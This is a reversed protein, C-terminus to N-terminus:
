KWRQGTATRRGGQVDRRPGINAPVPPPEPLVVPGHERSALLVTAKAVTNVDGRQNRGSFELDVAAGVGEIVRRGVVSGDFRTTDGVYNFRRFEGRLKYVWGDDGCFNTAYHCLWSWRVPGIDYASIVGIERAHQYDWHIRQIVDWANFENRTYFGRL